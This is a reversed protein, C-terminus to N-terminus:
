KKIAREVEEVTTVGIKRYSLRYGDKETKKYIVLQPISNGSLLESALKPHTSSNVTAYNVNSTDVKPMIKDKMIVCGPCWDAGVLVVLPKGNVQASKYAEDYTLGGLLLLAYIFM